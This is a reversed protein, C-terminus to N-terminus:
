RDHAFRLVLFPSLLVAFLGLRGTFCRIAVTGEMKVFEDEARQLKLELYEVKDLQCDVAETLKKILGDKEAVAEEYEDIESKLEAAENLARKLDMQMQTMEMTDGRVNLKRRLSIVEEHLAENEEFLDEDESERLEELSKKKKKKKKRKKSLGSKTSAEGDSGSDDPASKKSKKKSKKSGSKSKDSSKKVERNHSSSPNEESYSGEEIPEPISLTGPESESDSPNSLESVVSSTSKAHVAIPKPRRKTNGRMM